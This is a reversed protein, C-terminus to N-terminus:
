EFPSSNKTLYGAYDSSFNKTVPKMMTLYDYCAAWEPNLKTCLACPNMLRETNYKYEIFQNLALLGLAVILIIIVLSHGWNFLVDKDLKFPEEIEESETM